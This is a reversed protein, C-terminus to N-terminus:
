NFATLSAFSHHGQYIKMIKNKQNQLVLLESTNLFYNIYYQYYIKHGQKYEEHFNTLKYTFDEIKASNQFLNLEYPLIDNLSSLTSFSNLFKTENNKNFINNLNYFIFYIISISIYTSIIQSALVQVNISILKASLKTKGFLFSNLSKLKFGLSCYPYTINANTGWCIIDLNSNQNKIQKLKLNFFPVDYRLNLGLAILGTM